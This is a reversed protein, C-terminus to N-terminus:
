FILFLGFLITVGGLIRVVWKLIPDLDKVKGELIMVQDKGEAYAKKIM